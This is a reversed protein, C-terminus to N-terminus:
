DLAKIFKDAARRSRSKSKISTNGSINFVKYDLELLRAKLVVVYNRNELYFDFLIEGDNNRM